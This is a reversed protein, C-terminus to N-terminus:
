KKKGSGGSGGTGGPRTSKVGYKKKKYYWIVIAAFGAIVLIAFGVEM